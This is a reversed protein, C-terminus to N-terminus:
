FMKIDFRTKMLDEM